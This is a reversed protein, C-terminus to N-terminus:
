RKARRLVFLVVRDTKSAFTEPRKAGPNAMCLKFVNGKLEYIGKLNKGKEDGTSPVIDITKVSKNPDVKYTGEEKGVKFRTTIKDGRFVLEFYDDSKDTVKKTKGNRTFEVLQWKGQLADRDGKAEKDAARACAATLVCVTALSCLWRKM